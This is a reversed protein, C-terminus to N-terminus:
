HDSARDDDSGAPMEDGRDVLRCTNDSEALSRWARPPAAPSQVSWRPWWLVPQSAVLITERIKTATTEIAAWGFPCRHGPGPCLPAAPEVDAQRDPAPHVM